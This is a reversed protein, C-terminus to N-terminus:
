ASRAVRDGAPLFWRAIVLGAAILGLADSLALYIFFRYGFHNSVPQGVHLYLAAAVSFLIVVRARDAFSTVRGAISSLAGAILAATVIAMVLKGILAATDVVPFGGSNFHILAIPGQGYLITGGGTSTWPVAYTGTGLTTLQQALASQVAANQGDSAVNYAIRSLPTAWFLFGVMFLALGGLVAGIFLRVM